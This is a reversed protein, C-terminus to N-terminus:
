EEKEWFGRVLIFPAGMLRRNDLLIFPTLFLLPTLTM